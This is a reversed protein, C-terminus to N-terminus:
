RASNGASCFVIEGCVQEYVKITEEVMRESSFKEIIRARGAEGIGRALDKDQLLRGAAEVIEGVNGEKVLFGSKADEIIEGFACCSFAVSPIGYSMASLLSTGLGEFFSPFLFVDLAPYVMEIDKVFGAFIVADGVGLERALRELDVRRPGDGALLLTCDHFEGRLQALAHILLEHGKDPLLVGVSGLLLTEDTIKWRLRGQKRREVSV